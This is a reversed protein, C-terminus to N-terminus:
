NDSYIHNSDSMEENDSSSSSDEASSQDSTLNIPPDDCIAVVKRKKAVDSQTTTSLKYKRKRSLYSKAASDLIGQIDSPSWVFQNCKLILLNEMTDHKLSLRTDTLLSTLHSFASEVISNTVGISMVLEALMCINKFQESKYVILKKWLNETQKINKYFHEVTWKLSTWEKKLKEVEFVFENFELPIKFHNALYLISDMESEVSDESWYAPNLWSFHKFVDAQFSKFRNSICIALNIIIPKMKANINEDNNFLVNTMGGTYALEVYEKVHNKNFGMKLCKKKLYFCNNVLETQFDGVPLNDPLELNNLEGVLKNIRDQAELVNLSSTQLYLSLESVKELILQYIICVKLFHFNTLKKRIGLLKSNITAYQKNLISNEIALLLVIWNHLLVNLSRLHHNVFRTGTVKPFKYIQACLAEATKEFHNKFKGSRKFLYYITVLFDEIAVFEKEKKLIDKIALEVRHCVCHINVLWERDDNKLRTLLGNYCGTNVAAGDATAAILKHKYQNKDLDLSTKGLFTDDLLTKLNESTADGYDGVNKLGVVFNEAVGDRVTKIMILEKEHGTKRAQSGDSLVTFFKTENIVDCLKKRMSTAIENIFERAKNSDQVGDILQVGHKKQIEIFSKFSKLPLGDTAVKYATNILKTYADHSLQKFKSDIVPQTGQASATTNNSNTSSTSSSKSAHDAIDVAEDNGTGLLKEFYIAAKHTKSNLHRFVTHKSIFTTGVVYKEFETLTKGRLHQSRSIKEHHRACIKCWINIVLQRGQSDTKTNSGIASNVDWNNFTHLQVCNRHQSM